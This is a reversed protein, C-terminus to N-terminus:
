QTAEMGLRDQLRARLRAPIVVGGQAQASYRARQLLSRRLGEGTIAREPYTRSFQTMKEMVQTRAEDDGMRVAMAFADMLARRRNEIHDAYGTIDRNLDFQEAVRAPALGTLQGITELVGFDEIVPDGRLTNVGETQFRIAKMGDKVAKPMMTEVGRWLHGDDMLQRGRAYNTVIGGLPGAAQEFLYNAWARGELERDADRFWLDNLSVRQAINVGTAAQVPGRLVAEAAGDGLTERLFTRFETEADWPEDDDGFAAAVANLVGFTVSMLPLGLTGAFLAHMGLVGALKRRAQTKQEPTAGKFANWANRCLFWTMNLAFQRFMLLVKATGSQMFRARNANSYDFHSEWIADEAEKIAAIKDKGADRALRYAAMGSAERNIVEAKHFLHGIVTMVKHWFPNYAHTDSESVGALNHAQTKDIAGRRRLENYAELEDPSLKKEIHGYTGMAEKSARLLAATAKNAGYKSALVPLTVMPTQLLNVLAAGPTIGLYWVFGLGSLKNVLKNDQPNMVWEHRRKLENVIRGAANAREDGDTAMNRAMGEAGRLAGELQYGYALRAIQFSGHFVHGAFARLADQSYGATKKRHIFNKRISLDPLTRLYLQYVEDLVSDPAGTQKLTKQLEVMFAGSAGDQQRMKDLKVGAAVDLLRLEAGAAKEPNKQAWGQALSASGFIRATGDKNRLPEGDQLLMYGGTVGEAKMQERARRQEAQTETMLFVREGDATYGSVWYEGWRALPVYFPVRAAEFQARMRAMTAAKQAGGMDLAQIRELLAQEYAESQRIYADRMAVWQDKAPTSLALWRARMAPYAAAREREQKWLKKVEKIRAGYRPASGPQLRMQAELEKIFKRVSEKTVDVLTRDDHLPMKLPRYAEAPDVGAITADHLLEFLKPAEERNAKLYSLGKQMIEHGSEQLENRMSAMRQVLDSYYSVAPLMNKALEGLHRLTLAGLAAPRWDAWKDKIWQLLTTDDPNIADQLRELMTPEAGKAFLPQGEAVAARMQPTIDISHVSIPKSGNVELDALRDVEKSIRQYEASGVEHQRRERILAHRQARIDQDRPTVSEGVEAVGVKAGFKKAWKGVAAPLIKDYFGRMGEGGVKLDANELVHWRGDKRSPSNILKDAAEKGIFEPLKNANIDIKSM